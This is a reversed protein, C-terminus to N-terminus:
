LANINAQTIEQKDCPLEEHLKNASDGCVSTVGCKCLARRLTSISPLNCLYEGCLDEFSLV